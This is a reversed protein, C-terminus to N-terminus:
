NLEEVLWDGKIQKGNLTVSYRCLVIRTKEINDVLKLKSPVYMRARSVEGQAILEKFKPVRVLSQQARAYDIKLAASDKQLVEIAASMDAVEKQLDLYPTPPDAKLSSLLQLDQKRGDLDQQLIQLPGAYHADIEERETDVLQKKAAYEKKKADLDQVLTQLRSQNTELITKELASKPTAYRQIQGQAKRIDLNIQDIGYSITGLDSGAEKKEADIRQNLAMLRSSMSDIESMLYSEDGSERLKRYRELLDQKTKLVKKKEGLEKEREGVLSGIMGLSQQDYEPGPTGAKGSSLHPLSSGPEGLRYCIQSLIEEDPETAAKVFIRAATAGDVSPLMKADSWLAAASKGGFLFFMAVILGIVVLLAVGGIVLLTPSLEPLSFGRSPTKRGPKRRGAATTKSPKPPPLPPLDASDDDAFLDPIEETPEAAPKEEEAMRKRREERGAPAPGAAPAKSPQETFAASAAPTAASPRAPEESSDEFDLSFTDDRGTPVGRAPTPASRVEHSQGREIVPEDEEIPELPIDDVDLGDLADDLGPLHDLTSGAPRVEFEQDCKDCRIRTPAQISDLAPYNYDTQCHQCRVKM